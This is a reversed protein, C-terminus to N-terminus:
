DKLITFSFISGIGLESNVWIKGGHLEVIKKCQALGIGTGPYRSRIHLRQFIIFIKNSFKEEIGIGNDEVSFIYQYNTEKVGIKVIPTENEKKFKLANSILNLFLQRLEVKYGKLVPMREVSIIAQSDNILKGLDDMVDKIILNMDVQEPKMEKGIRSYQLLDFILAEMRESSQGLFELYKVGNGELKNRYNKNLNDILSSITKLPEQLDHSAIYAFQELEENKAEIKSLTKELKINGTKLENQLEAEKYITKQLGNFLLNISVVIVTSLFILNSSVAIWSGMSYVKKVNEPLLHLHILFVFAVCVLLNGGITWIAVNLPFILAVFITLALLYLLGPGFSGLFILLAISLGYLLVVLTVKRSYLSFRPYIAIAVFIGVAVVDILALLPINGIISMVVGPLLAFLSVPIIYILINTFLRDRWYSLDRIPVEIDKLINKEVLNKYSKWFRM